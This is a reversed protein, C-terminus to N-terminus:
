EDLVSSVSSPISIRRLRSMFILARIIRFSKHFLVDDKVYCIFRFLSKQKDFSMWFVVLPLKEYLINLFFNSSWHEKTKCFSCVLVISTFRSYPYFIRYLRSSELYLKSSISIKTDWGMWTTYKLYSSASFLYSNSPLFLLSTSTEYRSKQHTTWQLMKFLCRIYIMYRRKYKSTEYRSTHIYEIGNLARYLVIRPM